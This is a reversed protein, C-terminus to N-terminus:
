CPPPSVMEVCTGCCDVLRRTANLYTSRTERLDRECEEAEAALRKAEEQYATSRVLFFIGAAFLIAALIVGWFGGNLALGAILWFAVAIAVHAWALERALREEERVRPCRRCLNTFRSLTTEAEYSGAVCEGSMMDCSTAGLTSFCIEPETPALLLPGNYEFGTDDGECPKATVWLPRDRDDVELWVTWTNPCSGEPPQEVPPLAGRSFSFDLVEVSKIGFGSTDVFDIRVRVRSGSRGEEIAMADIM